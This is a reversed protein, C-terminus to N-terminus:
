RRRHTTIKRRLRFGRGSSESGSRDSFDSSQTGSDSESRDTGSYDSNEISGNFKPKILVICHGGSEPISCVEEYQVEVVTNEDSPRIKEERNEKTSEM